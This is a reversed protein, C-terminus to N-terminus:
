TKRQDHHRRSSRCLRDSWYCRYFFAYYYNLEYEVYVILMSSKIIIEGILIKHDVVGSLIQSFEVFYKEPPDVPFDDYPVVLTTRYFNVKFTIPSTRYDQSNNILQFTDITVSGDEKLLSQYKTM